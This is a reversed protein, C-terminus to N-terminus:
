SKYSVAFLWRGSSSQRSNPSGFNYQETLLQIWSIFSSTLLSSFLHLSFRHSCYTKYGHTHMHTFISKLYFSIMSFCPSNTFGDPFSIPTLPDYFIVGGARIFNVFYKQLAHSPTINKSFSHLIIRWGGELRLIHLPPISKSQSNIWTNTARNM